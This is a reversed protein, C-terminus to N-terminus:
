LEDCVNSDLGMKAEAICLLVKSFVTLHWKRAKSSLRLFSSYFFFLNIWRRRWLDM